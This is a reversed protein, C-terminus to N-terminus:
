PTRGGQAEAAELAALGEAIHAFSSAAPAEPAHLLLPRRARMARWMEPDHPVHGLYDLALGFFRRWAAVVAGGVQEDEPTRVQNVVLRPRFSALERALVEGARLAFSVGDVARVTGVRRRFVTGKTLPYHKTLETVRLVVEAAARDDRAVPRDPTRDPRGGVGFVEAAGPEDRRLEGSRWCAARHGNGGTLGPKETHCRHEALPCRPTFPCGPGLDVLSPPQGEIPVLPRRRDGDLRPLSGLLGWTYPM